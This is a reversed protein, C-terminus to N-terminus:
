IDTYDVIFMFVCVHIYTNEFVKNKGGALM